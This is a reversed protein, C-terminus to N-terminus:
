AILDSKNGRSHKHMIFKIDEETIKKMEVDVDVVTRVTKNFHAAIQEISISKSKLLAIIAEKEDTPMFKFEVNLGEPPAEYSGPRVM